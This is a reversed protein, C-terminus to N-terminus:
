WIRKARRFQRRIKGQYRLRKQRVAEITKGTIKVIKENDFETILKSESPTWRKAGVTPKNFIRCDQRTPMKVMECELMEALRLRGGNVAIMAQLDFFLQSTPPKLGPFIHPNASM